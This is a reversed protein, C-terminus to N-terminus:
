APPSSLKRQQENGIQGLLWQVVRPKGFVVNMTPPKDGDAARHEVTEFVGGAERVIIETASIDWPKLGYDVMAGLAGEVALGHGFADTYTRVSKHARMLHDFMDARDEGIFQSREGIGIVEHPISAPDDADQIAIGKGNCTAGLGLAGVYLRDLMPLDILGLVSQGNLRLALLTGFLPLRQRLSHTGDIPDIVWLGNADDLEGGEEEGLIPIEPTLVALRERIRTEVALDIETVFSGDAKFHDAFDTEFRDRILVRTECLIDIAGERLHELGALITM